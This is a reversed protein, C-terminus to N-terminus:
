IIHSVKWKLIRWISKTTKNFLGTYVKHNLFQLSILIHMNTKVCKTKM